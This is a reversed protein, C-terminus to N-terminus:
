FRGGIDKRFYMGEFNITKLLEYAKKQAEELTNGLAVVNLVRGGNTLLKGSEVKAGCIFVKNDDTENFDLVGTIEDGKKYSEPYGGAAAVVCCSHLPKWDVKVELLKKEFSKEILELLDNELLPLVAQTEPDGMRMNYELLYVGKKTIMLGFFIVGEFDMGESQMGKLTPEMIDSKFKEFIEDTVFPNPSIVGMGGTNLGTEDEGIKKHDKASLLPVIVKSDTFSLISAEVGDLYEEIVVQSGANGFKEDVMIDEVAKIAENLNQAIIVGKGAALGSAKIVVPFNKWNNLFEKAKESNDFIEYVATKIGYKKMFDKSYAKSGELIAAKKDPGFIKLGNKHFEDVIGQVLLEESGVVTLEVNNDKAFSIYEDISGLNVSEANPLMEVCANGPAIFIKEVKENQSLKWAIAHERGGAGVILIKMMEEKLMRFKQSVKKIVNKSYIKACKKTINFASLQFNKIFIM